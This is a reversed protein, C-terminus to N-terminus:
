RRRDKWIEFESKFPYCRAMAKSVELSILELQDPTTATDNLCFVRYPNNQVIRALFVPLNEQSIDQYGYKIHGPVARGTAFAYFHYLGSPISYDDPHRFRSAAVTKFLDPFREEMEYLVDRQLAIPTHKFKNTITVGFEDAILARANKAASLVPLDRASAPAVDLCANSPFYKSIRSSHFFDGPQVIGGFFVDDNLYLFKNSLGDIHHLQSEIAHSNFVPLVDPDTFIDEHSVIKIRPNATDLWDPVQHDTVIYINRVWNAYLEISRLSYLLENRSIFRSANVATDNLQATDTIGLADNKRQQWVPDDGDVWTYVVDIPDTIQYIHPKSATAPWRSPSDNAAQWSEPSLYACIGNPAPAMLTGPEYTYGDPRPVNDEVVEHWFSLQVGSRHTGFEKGAESIKHSFLTYENHRKLRSLHGASLVHDLRITANHKGRGHTHSALLWHESGPLHRSFERAVAAKDCEKLVITKSGYRQPLLAFPIRESDLIGTALELARDREAWSDFHDVVHSHEAHSLNAQGHTTGPVLLTSLAARPNSLTGRFAHGQGATNILFVKAPVPLRKAVEKKFGKLSM